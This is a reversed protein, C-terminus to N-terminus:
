YETITSKKRRGKAKAKALGSNNTGEGLLEQDILHEICTFLFFKTLQEPFTEIIADVVIYVTIHHIM